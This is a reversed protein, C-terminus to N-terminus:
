GNVLTYQMKNLSSQISNDKVSSVEVKFGESFLKTFVKDLWLPIFDGPLDKDAMLLQFKELSVEVRGVRRGVIKWLTVTDETRLVWYNLGPTIHFYNIYKRECGVAAGFDAVNQKISHSGIESVTQKREAWSRFLSTLHTLDYSILFVYAFNVPLLWQDHM